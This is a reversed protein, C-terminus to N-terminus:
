RGLEFVVNLTVSLTSEGPSVPTSFSKDARPAAAAMLVPQFGQSNNEDISVVRIVRLGLAKAYLDARARAKQIAQVRAQDYLGEPQDISFTPGNIQNAGQASVADLVKGVNDIKRVKVNVTNSAQYGIIRPAQNEEYKYQPNLSVGSTQIDREQVGAKRVAEVVQQMQRANDQMAQNSSPHQTVVGVSIQAVDPTQTVEATSSVNLVTGNIAITPQSVQATAMLPALLLLSALTLSKM